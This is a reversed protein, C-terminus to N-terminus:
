LNEFVTKFNSIMNTQLSLLFSSFLVNPAYEEFYTHFINYYNLIYTITIITLLQIFALILPHLQSNQNQIKSFLNNIYIGIFFCLIFVRTSKILYEQYNM